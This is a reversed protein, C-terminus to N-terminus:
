LNSPCRGLKAGMGRLPISAWPRLAHACATCHALQKAGVTHEPQRSPLEGETLDLASNFYGLVRGSVRELSPICKYPAENWHTTATPTCTNQPKSNNQRKGATFKYARTKDKNTRRVQPQVEARGVPVLVPLAFRGGQCHGRFEPQGSSLEFWGVGTCLAPNSLPQLLSLSQLINRDYRELVETLASSAQESRKAREKLAKFILPPVIRRSQLPPLV